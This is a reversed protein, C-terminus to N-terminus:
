NEAPLDVIKKTGHISKSINLKEYFKVKLINTVRQRCMMCKEDKRWGEIACEYCIGSHGCDMIIATPPRQVCVYCM